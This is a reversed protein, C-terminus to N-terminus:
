FADFIAMPPGALLDRLLTYGGEDHVTLRESQRVSDLTPTGFYGQTLAQIDLGVQPEEHTSRVDVRGAEFEIQWIGENWPAQADRVAIHVVGRVRPDPRWAALAYPVDVIRSQCSPALTTEVEGHTLQSWLGDNGPAAWKFRDVQMDHRRLLGLLGRLARPTLCIFDKLETEERKGGRYTLYGEVQGGQEYLYTYTFRDKSDHLIRNWLKEDRQTMGRYGRAYRTYCGIIAERDAPTAARVQETAPDLKCITTPVTYERREGTWEWGFRRYFDYSFPFLCSIVQGRDRMQALAYKLGEGVYGKGRSAPLCAVGAVGGMPVVVDPGLHTQFSVVEIKAQLGREDYVGYSDMTARNPDHYHGMDRNGNGFAQTGLYFRAEVEDRTIERIEM